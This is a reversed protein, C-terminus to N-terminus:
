SGHLTEVLFPISELEARALLLQKDQRVLWHVPASMADRGKRHCLARREARGSVPLDTICVAKLRYIDAQCIYITTIYM